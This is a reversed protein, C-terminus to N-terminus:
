GSTQTLKFDQPDQPIRAQSHSVLKIRLPSSIKSLNEKIRDLHWLRSTNITILKRCAKNLRKKAKKAEDQYM